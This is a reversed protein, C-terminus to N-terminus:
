RSEHNALDETEVRIGAATESVTQTANARTAPSGTHANPVSGVIIPRDPDGDIFAVLVETGRHLPQHTGYGPGTYPQAMRIWRSVAAGAANGSDFPLRVKYRGQEDIEAYVGTGDAEVHGHMIGHISPWPTTAEPRYPVDLPIAEFSATYRGPGDHEGPAEGPIAEGVRHEIATILYDREFGSEHHDVLGFRHGV